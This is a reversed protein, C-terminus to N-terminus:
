EAGIEALCRSCRCEFFWGEQLEKRRERWGMGEVHGYSICLEEGAGVTKMTLFRLARGNREKSVNPSCHHNFLSQRPYVAFGLCESEETLPMEWIGFSNGPDVSLARRVNAVTVVGEISLLAAANGGLPKWASPGGGLRGRLAQYVRIQNELLEPYTRLHQLENTQLSAFVSWSEGGFDLHSNKDTIPVPVRLSATQLQQERHLHVLALLVYRAMDTEYDDLQMQAWRRIEKPFSEKHRAEDWARQIADETLEPAVGRSATDAAQSKGGDQKSRAGELHRLLALTDVGERTIWSAQCREDCFWLGAGGGRNEQSRADAVIGAGLPVTGTTRVYGDGDRRTLFTRRGGDYRWCEACVENRFRKWVTYAYPTSAELVTTTPPIAVSTHHTRGAHPDVEIRLLPSTGDPILQPSFDRTSPLVPAIM